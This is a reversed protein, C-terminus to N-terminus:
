FLFFLRFVQAYQSGHAEAIWPFPTHSEHVVMNNYVNREIPLASIFTGYHSNKVTYKGNSEEVQWYIFDLILVAFM